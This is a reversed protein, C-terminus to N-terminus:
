GTMVYLILHLCYRWYRQLATQRKMLKQVAAKKWYALSKVPRRLNNIFFRKSSPKYPKKLCNEIQAYQELYRRKAKKCGRRFLVLGFFAKISRDDQWDDLLKLYSLIVGMDAAYNVAEDSVVCKNKKIPNFECRKDCFDTKDSNVSSLIIALFTIDYSLGMRSMHSCQKGIAKCLGCYYAKFINYGEDSLTDKCVTVYGFM